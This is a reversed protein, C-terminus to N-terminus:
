GGPPTPTPAYRGLAAEFRHTRVDVPQVGRLVLHLLPYAEAEENRIDFEVAHRLSDVGDEPVVVRAVEALGSSSALVAHFRREGAENAAFVWGWRDRGMRRFRATACGCDGAEGVPWGRLVALAKLRGGEQPEAIIAAFAGTGERRVGPVHHAHLFVRERGGMPRWEPTGPRFCFPRRTGGIDLRVPWCGRAADIDAGTLLAMLAPAPAIFGDAAAEQMVAERRGPPPGASGAAADTAASADGETPAPATGGCAALGLSALVLFARVPKWSASASRKVPRHRM